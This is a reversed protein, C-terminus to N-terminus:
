PLVENRRNASALTIGAKRLSRRMSSISRGAGEALETLTVEPFEAVIERLLESETEAKTKPRPHAQEYRERDRQLEAIPFLPM